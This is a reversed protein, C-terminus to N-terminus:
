DIPALLGGRRHLQLYHADRGLGVSPELARNLGRRRISQRHAELHRRATQRRKMERHRRSLRVSQLAM